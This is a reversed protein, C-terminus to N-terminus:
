RSLEAAIDLGEYRVVGPGEYSPHSMIDFIPMGVLESRLNEGHVRSVIHGGCRRIIDVAKSVTMDELTGTAFVFRVKTSKSLMTMGGHQTGNMGLSMAVTM